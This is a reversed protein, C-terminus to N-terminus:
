SNNTSEATYVMHTYFHPVKNLDDIHESFELVFLSQVSLCLVAPNSSLIICMGKIM